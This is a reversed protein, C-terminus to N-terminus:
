RPGNKDEAPDHMIHCTAGDSCKCHSKTCARTCQNPMRDKHMGNPEYGSYWNGYREILLCRDTVAQACAAAIARPGDNTNALRDNICSQLEQAQVEDTHAKCHCPHDPDRGLGCEPM